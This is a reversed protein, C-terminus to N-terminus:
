VDGGGAAPPAFATGIRVPGSWAGKGFVWSVTMTGTRDVSLATLQNAQQYGLAVPAGAAAINTAGFPVPGWWAETNTVWSVAWTSNIDIVVATLQDDAQKAMAIGAGPPACQGYLYRLSALDTASLGARQGLNTCTTPNVAKVGPGPLGPALFADPGYQM